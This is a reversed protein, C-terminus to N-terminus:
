HGVAGPLAQLKYIFLGARQFKIGLTSMPLSERYLGLYYINCDTCVMHDSYNYSQPNLEFLGFFCKHPCPQTHTCIPLLNQSPFIQGALFVCINRSQNRLPYFLLKPVGCGYHMGSHTLWPFITSGTMWSM